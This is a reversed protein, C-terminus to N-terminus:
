DDDEVDEDEDRGAFHYKLSSQAFRDYYHNGEIYFHHKGVFPKDRGPHPESCSVDVHLNSKPSLRLSLMLAGEDRYASLKVKWTKPDFESQELLWELEAIQAKLADLVPIKM